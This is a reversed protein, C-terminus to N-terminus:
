TDGRLVARVPEVQDLWRPTSPAEIIEGIQPGMGRYDQTILLGPADQWLYLNTSTQLAAAIDDLVAPPVPSHPVLALASRYSQFQADEATPDSADEAWSGAAFVQRALSVREALEPPELRDPPLECRDSYQVMGLDRVDEGDTVLERVFSEIGTFRPALDEDDHMLFFVMGRLPGSRYVGAFGQGDRWLLLGDPCSGEVWWAMEAQEAASLLSIRGSRGPRESSWRHFRDLAAIEAPGLGGTELEMTEM